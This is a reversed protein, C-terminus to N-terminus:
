LPTGLGTSSQETTRPDPDDWLAGVKSIGLSSIMEPTLHCGTGRQYARKMRELADHAADFCDSM